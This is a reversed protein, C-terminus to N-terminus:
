HSTLPSSENDFNLQVGIVREIQISEKLNLVEPYFDCVIHITARRRLSNNLKIFVYESFEGFTKPKISKRSQYCM